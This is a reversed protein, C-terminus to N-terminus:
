GGLGACAIEGFIGLVKAHVDPIRKELHARLNDRHEVAFRVVELVQREDMTRLDAVLSEVGLTEM